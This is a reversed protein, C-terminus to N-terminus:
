SDDDHRGRGCLKARGIGLVIQIVLVYVILMVFSMLEVINNRAWGPMFFCFADAHCLVDLSPM